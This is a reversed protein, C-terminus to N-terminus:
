TTRSLRAGIRYHILVYMAICVATIYIPFAATAFNWQDVTLLTIIGALAGNRWATDTETEPHHYAKRATPITAVFGAVINFAIATNPNSTVIWGIIALAAIAGCIYDFRGLKWVAEKNFFSALLICFPGFAVAFTMVAVLGVHQQLEAALTVGGQFAFTAWTVRNPKSHGRLTDRAFTLDGILALAAGVFVFYGNIM